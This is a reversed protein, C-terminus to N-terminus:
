AGAWSLSIEPMDSPMLINWVGTDGSLRPSRAIWFALLEQMVGRVIGHGLCAHQGMGFTLPRAGSRAPNFRRPDPFAAPDHNGAAWIMSLATGPEIEVGGVSMADTSLRMTMPAPSALRLCENACQATPVLRDANLAAIRLAGTLGTISTEIADFAMGAILDAARRHGVTEALVRSFVSGRQVAAYSLEATEAAAAEAISAKSLDPAPSLIYGMEQVARELREAGCADYGAISAWVARVIPAVLGDRIPLANASVPLAEAVCRRIVGPVDAMGLAAVLAARDTRHAAGSKTFVSRMLLEYIRPTDAMAEASPAMGDASPDRSLAMLESHGLIALGGWPALQIRHGAALDDCFADGIASWGGPRDFTTFTKM